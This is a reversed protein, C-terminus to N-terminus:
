EGTPTSPREPRKGELILWAVLRPETEAFLHQSSYIEVCLCAFAFIGFVFNPLHGSENFRPPDILEFAIWGPPYNPKSTYGMGAHNPMIALGFDSLCADGNGNILVNTAHLSGRVISENHLYQIAQIIQAIWTNLQQLSPRRDLSSM